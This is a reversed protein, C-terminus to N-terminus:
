GVASEFYINKDRLGAEISALTHGAGLILAKGNFKGAIFTIAEVDGATTDVDEALIRDPVESGDTAAAASLVFEGTATVKGLVAGRKLAGQGGSIVAKRQITDRDCLADPTYTGENRLGDANGIM